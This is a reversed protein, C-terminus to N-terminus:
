FQRDGQSSDNLLSPTVGSQGDRDNLQETHVSSWQVSNLEIESTTQTQMDDLDLCKEGEPKRGDHDKPNIDDKNSVLKSTGSEQTHLSQVSTSQHQTSQSQTISSVQTM